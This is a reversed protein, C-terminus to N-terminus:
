PKKMESERKQLAVALALFLFAFFVAGTGFLIAIGTFIIDIM